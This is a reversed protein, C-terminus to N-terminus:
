LSYTQIFAPDTWGLWLSCLKCALFDDCWDLLVLSGGPRLVRKMEDLALRGDPFYHFSNACIVRDFTGDAFPLHCVDSHVFECRNGENKRVAQKLMGASIDVGVISLSPHRALLRQEIEGTGCPIDLIRENGRLSLVNVVLRLTADIYPRWRHDYEPALRDYEQQSRNRNLPKM